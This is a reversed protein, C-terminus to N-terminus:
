KSAGASQQHVLNVLWALDDPNTQPLVGHGLNFVHGARGGARQMVDLTERKIVDRPALMVVPDLNGQIGRGPGIQKWAADLPVRWDVSVIDPGVEGMKPLLSAVGTGFHISPIGMGRVEQFIRRSYPEVYTQYQQPGLVGVWSDFLQVVQVGAQVQARLYRVIVETITKMMRHWEAPHSYMFGKAVDYTRSPRGEIMYCALTFPSGSFGVLAATDKLERRLLRIADFVYPTAEEAPIIRLADVQAATRIPTDIIPGIEPEIRFPVGMGDLPLMIDAFMVAADVGLRTVPLMTVEVCLAPTKVITLIEYKERLRRYEQFCRGAQRMFWVPTADTAQLRCAALMRDSGTMTKVLSVFAERCFFYM